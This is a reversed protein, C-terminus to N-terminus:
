VKNQPGLALQASRHCCFQFFNRMEQPVEKQFFMSILGILGFITFALLVTLMSIVSLAIIVIFLMTGKPPVKGKSSLTQANLLPACFPM